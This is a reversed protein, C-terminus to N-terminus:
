KGKKKKANQEQTHKDSAWKCWENDMALILEYFELDDIQRFNLYTLIDSTRLPSIGFGSQRGSHLQEFAQWIPILDDFLEPRNEIAPVRKGKAAIKELQQAYNGWEL